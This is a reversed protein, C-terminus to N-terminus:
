HGNWSTDQLSDIDVREGCHGSAKSRDTLISLPWRAPIRRSAPIGSQQYLGLWALPIELLTLDMYQSYSLLIWRAPIRRYIHCPNKGTSSSAKRWSINSLTMRCKLFRMFFPMFYNLVKIGWVEYVNVGDVGLDVLMVLLSKMLGRDIIRGSRELLVNELLVLRMRERINPHYIIM